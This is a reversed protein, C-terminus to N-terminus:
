FDGAECATIGRDSTEINDIRWFRTKNEEADEFITEDYIHGSQVDLFIIKKKEKEAIFVHGELSDKWIITIEARSRFLM